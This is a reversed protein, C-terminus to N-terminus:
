SPAAAAQLPVRPARWLLAAHQVALTVGMGLWLGNGNFPADDVAAEVNGLM